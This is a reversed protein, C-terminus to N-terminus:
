VNAVGLLVGINDVISCQYIKNSEITPTELWKITDPLTLTTATSGSTFEFMYENLQTTDTIEALTLNLETVEGFKYFKNPQIQLTTTTSEVVEVSYNKGDKGDAGQEGKLEDKHEDVYTEVIVPVQENAYQKASDLIKAYQEDVYENLKLPRSYIYIGGNKYNSNYDTGIYIKDETAYISCATRDEVPNEGIFTPEARNTIDWVAVGKIGMDEYLYNEYITISNPSPEGGTITTRYKDPIKFFEVNPNEVDEINVVAIGQITNEFDSIYTPEPAISCYIYPYNIDLGMTHLYGDSNPCEKWVEHLDIACKETVVNNDIEYVKVLHRSYGCIALYQKGNATFFKPQQYETKDIMSQERSDERYIQILQPTSLNLGETSYLIWGGLQQTVCLLDNTCDAYHTKGYYRKINNIETMDTSYSQSFIVRPNELTLDIVDLYGGITASTKYSTGSVNDRYPVFLYKGDTCMGRTVYGKHGGITWETSPIGSDTKTDLKVVKNQSIANHYIYRNDQIVMARPTSPTSISFIEITRSLLDEFSPKRNIDDEANIIRMRLENDDYNELKSLKEKEKNTYNNDTHVYNNDKIYGQNELKSTIESEIEQKDENTFYDTGKIPTYGDQGAEGQSGTAGTEGKPGQEGQPGTDGKEGRLEEKHENVYTEVISPVQNDAYQKASELTKTDQEDVYTKNVTGEINASIVNDKITINEGATLKDQKTNVIDIINPYDDEITATANIANLVEVYFKKSKFVPIGNVNEDQTIRLQMYIYGAQNLLSSKIELTYTENEKTMQIYGKEGNEKEIELWAVGDIFKEFNFIIKGQLNEGNIGLIKKDLIIMSNSLVKINIDKNIM